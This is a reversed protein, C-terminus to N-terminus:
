LRKRFQIARGVVDFGIARHAAESITNDIACDSAMESCGHSRAWVEAAQVLKAGFGQARLDPEVYWGEIYGVPSTTCGDAFQRLSAELFGGLKGAGNTSAGCDLVFVALRDTERRHKEMEAEHDDRSEEPWLADRLRRWEAEDGSQVARVFPMM